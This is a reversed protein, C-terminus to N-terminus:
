CLLRAIRYGEAVPPGDETPSVDEAALWKGADLLPVSTEKAANPMSRADAYHSLATMGRREFVNIRKTAGAPDRTGFREGATTFV